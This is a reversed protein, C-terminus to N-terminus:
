IGHFEYKLVVNGSRVDTPEYRINATNSYWDGRWEFDIKGSLQETRYPSNNLLLSVTAKGAIEGSGRVTLAYIRTGDSSTRLVLNEPKRVDNVTVRALLIFGPFLFWVAAAVMAAALVCIVLLRKTVPSAM